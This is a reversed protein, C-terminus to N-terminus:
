NQATVARGKRKKNLLQDLRAECESNGVECNIVTSAVQEFTADDKTILLELNWRGVREFKVPVEYLGPGVMKVDYSRDLEQEASRGFEAVIVADNIPYNDRDIVRIKFVNEEDIRPTKEFGFDVKWGRERQLVMRKQYENFYAEKKHYANPVEGSFRTNVEVGDNKTFRLGKEAMFVFNLDVIVLVVFFALIAIPGWHMKKGDNGALSKLGGKGILYYAFATVLNSSLYLALVDGGQWNVISVPVLVAISILASISAAQLYTFRLLKNFMLCLLFVGVIGSVMFIITGIM